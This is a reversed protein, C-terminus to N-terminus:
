KNQMQTLIIREIYSIHIPTNFTDGVGQDKKTSVADHKLPPSQLPLLAAPLRHLRHGVPPECNKKGNVFTRIFQLTTVHSWGLVYKYNM